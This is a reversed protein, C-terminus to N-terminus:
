FGRYGGVTLYPGVRRGDEKLAGASVRFKFGGLGFESWHAGVRVKTSDKAAYLSLEPGLYGWLEKAPNVRWGFAIRSWVDQKATGAAINATLLMTPTPQSWWDGHIRFGFRRERRLTAGIPDVATEQFYEPGVFVGLSGGAVLFEAGVLLHAAFKWSDSERRLALPRTERWRGGGIAGVVIFRDEGLPKFPRWKFGGSAYINARDFEQGTFLVLSPPRGAVAGQSGFAPSM